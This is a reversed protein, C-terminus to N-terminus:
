AIVFPRDGVEGGTQGPHNRAPCEPSRPARPGMQVGSTGEVSRDLLHLFDSAIGREPPHALGDLSALAKTRSADSSALKGM